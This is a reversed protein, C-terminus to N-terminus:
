DGDDDPLRGAGVDHSARLGRGDDNGPDLQLRWGFRDAIRGILFLGLGNGRGPVAFGPNVVRTAIWTLLGPM